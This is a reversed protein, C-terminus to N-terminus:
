AAISVGCAKTARGVGRDRPAIDRDSSCSDRDRESVRRDCSSFGRDCENVDHNRAACDRDDGLVDRNRLHAHCAREGGVRARGALTPHPATSITMLLVVRATM